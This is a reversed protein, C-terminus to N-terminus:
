GSFFVMMFVADNQSFHHLVAVFVCSYVTFVVVVFFSLFFGDGHILVLFLVPLQFNFGGLVLM